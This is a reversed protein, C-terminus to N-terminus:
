QSKFYELIINLAESEEGWDKVVVVSAGVVYEKEDCSQRARLPPCLVAVFIFPRDLAKVSERIGRALGDHILSRKLVDQLAEEVTMTSAVHVEAAAVEVTDAM